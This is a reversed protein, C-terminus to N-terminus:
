GLAFYSSEFGRWACVLRHEHAPLCSRTFMFFRVAQQNANPSATVRQMALQPPPLLLLPPPPLVVGIAVTVMEGASAATTTEVCVWCNVAVTVPLTLSRETFQLTSPTAPPFLVAPVTLVLPRYV